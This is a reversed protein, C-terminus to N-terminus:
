YILMVVKGKIDIFRVKNQDVINNNDGKTIYYTGQEDSGIDIIRHIVIDENDNFSIIDGVHLNDEKPTIELAKTNHNLIPIMSLTNAFVALRADKITIIAQGDNLTVSEQPINEPINEM